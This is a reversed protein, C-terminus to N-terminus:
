AARGAPRPVHVRRLDGCGPDAPRHEIRAQHWAVLVALGWLEFGYSRRGTLHDDLARGVAAPDLVGLRAVAAPALLDRVPAAGPGRLWAHVPISFGQKPRNAIEPGFTRRALERLVWKLQGGPGIKFREPLRLAWAALGHEVFPARVELGHAMSMRDSKTLIDNPLYERVDARQLDFLSPGRALGHRGALEGLTAGVADRLPGPRALRAAEHPLWTGNWTFHAPGTDLDLARLFRWLKYSLAVKSEATPLARGLRAALRRGARPLPALWRAHLRSAAYTLYGGFLEDGGDGGLVVKNARAAHRALTYVALASSDALPDDAHEVLRPFDALADATLRVRELPLGLRKAVREAAGYESHTAEAFDLCYARNLRGQRMASEALLSSDMGGSLFIGVPVDSRLNLRVARDLRARCEALVEEAPAAELSADAAGPPQWFTGGREGGAGYLRWTGPPLREVGALLSRGGPVYNLLLYGALAALDLRRPVDPLAALPRLESAFALGGPTRLLFLPKEGVRDRALFLEGRRRDALAFAFMGTLRAPLDTGWERYGHLLVETDSATRFAHGRAELEARLEPHNYIEGNFVVVLAGDATAMPQGGTALGIVALRLHGLFFPGDAWWAGADPGRHRLHNVLAPGRERWPPPGDFGFMGFLGCM